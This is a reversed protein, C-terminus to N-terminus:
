APLLQPNGKVYARGAREPQDSRFILDDVPEGAEYRAVVADPEWHEGVPNAAFAPGAMFLNAEEPTMLDIQFEHSNGDPDKYYLSLTIGHRLCRDPHLGQNSLRQYTDLLEGLDKWTFAVHSVGVATPPESPNRAGGAGLNLLAVRHHEDDYTLFTLRDDSHQVRAELVLAYWDIMERYRHTRYVVHCFKTPAVMAITGQGDFGGVM